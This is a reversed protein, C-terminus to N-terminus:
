GVGVAFSEAGDAACTTLAVTLVADVFLAAGAVEGSDVVVAIEVLVADGADDPLTAACLRAVRAAGSGYMM